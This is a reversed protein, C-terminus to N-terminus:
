AGRRILRDSVRLANAAVTLAPNTGGSTPFFSADVIYLNEVDHCRNDRDVV